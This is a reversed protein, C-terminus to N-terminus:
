KTLATGLEYPTEGDNIPTRCHVLAGKLEYPSRKGKLPGGLQVLAQEMALPGGGKRRKAKM